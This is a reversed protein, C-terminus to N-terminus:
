RLNHKGESSTLIKRYFCSVSSPKSEGYCLRWHKDDCESDYVGKCLSDKVCDEWANKLSEYRNDQKEHCSTKYEPTPPDNIGIISILITYCTNRSNDTLSYQPNSM